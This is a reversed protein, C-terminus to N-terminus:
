EENWSDFGVDKIKIKPNKKYRKVWKNHGIEAEERNEYLEVVGQGYKSEMFTEWKGTDFARCTDINYTKEDTYKFVDKRSKELSPFGDFMEGLFNNVGSM